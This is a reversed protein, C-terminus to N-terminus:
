SFIYHYFIYTSEKGVCQEVAGHICGRCGNDTVCFRM